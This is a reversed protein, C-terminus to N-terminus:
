PTRALYVGSYDEGLTTFGDVNVARQVRAVVAIAQDSTIEVAGYFGRSGPDISYAQTPDSGFQAYSPMSADASALVHTGLLSGDTGYYKVQIDSAATDSINQVSITTRWGDTRTAYEVYPLVVHYRGDTQLFAGPDPMRQGTYAALLGDQGSVMAVVSISGGPATVVASLSRGSMEPTDCPNLNSQAGAQISGGDQTAFLGGSRDYYKVEYTIEGSGTNQVHLMSTVRGTGYQCSVVPMFISSEGGSLGEYAFARRGGGQTVRVAAVVRADQNSPSDIGAEIVMAGEFGPALGLESASRILSAQSPILQDSLVTRPGLADIVHVSVKIDVAEVNQIGIQPDLAPTVSFYPVYYKGFGSDRMSFSSYILSSYPDDGAVVQRYVALVPTTASIVASGKFNPDMLTNGIYLTGSGNKELNVPRSPIDSGDATYYVITLQHGGEGPNYYSIISTWAPAAQSANASGPLALVGLLLIGATIFLSFRRM